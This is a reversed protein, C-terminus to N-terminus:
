AGSEVDPTDRAPPRMAAVDIKAAAIRGHVGLKEYVREVASKATEVGIGLSEAIQPRTAGSAVLCLVVWERRTLRVRQDVALTM